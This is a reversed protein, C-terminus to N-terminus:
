YHDLLPRMAGTLTDLLKEIESEGTCSWKIVTLKPNVKREAM